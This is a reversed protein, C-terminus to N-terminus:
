LAAATQMLVGPGRTFPNVIGTVLRLRETATAAVALPTFGDTGTPGEASWLDHYGLSEIRRYLEPHEPLPVGAFAGEHRPAPLASRRCRRDARDGGGSHPALYAVSLFFPRPEPAHRAIYGAAKDTFLDSSYRPGIVPARRACGRRCRTRTRPRSSGTAARSARRTAWCGTTTPTSAPSRSPCCLPFSAFSSALSTGQRVLLGRVRPLAGM